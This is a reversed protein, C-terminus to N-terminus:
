RDQLQQSHGAKQLSKGYRSGHEETSLNPVYSIALKSLRAVVDLVETVLEVLLVETKELRAGLRSGRWSKM